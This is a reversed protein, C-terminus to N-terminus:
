FIAADLAQCYLLAADTSKKWHRAFAYTTAQRFLDGEFRQWRKAMV